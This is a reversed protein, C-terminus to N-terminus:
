QPTVTLNLTISQMVPSGSTSAATVQFQYAGAAAYRLNFNQKGGCGTAFLTSACFLLALLLLRHRRLNKRDRWIMCLCPALLCFFADALKTSRTSSGPRTPILADAISTVTNITVVSAQPSGALTVAPPLLSCSVYQAASLPACTLAVSGAFGGTPTVTLNYTAPKGSQVTAAPDDVTLTFGGGAAIGTGSLPVATPSSSDSSAVTLTGNRPGASSPTFTIQVACSNGPALTTVACPFSVIYDGSISLALNTLPATGTNMLSLQLNASLGVAVNGFSLTSPTILLRSQTGIGTLPLTLPITSASSAFAVSGTRTGTAAPAFTVQATCSTNAALTAGAAPCSGAVTYDGTATLSAFYIPNAGTNTLQVPLTASSGLPLSGFNLSTPAIVLPSPTSTSILSLFELSTTANSSISLAAIHTGPTQPTSAVTVDCSAGAVVTTCPNQISFDSPASIVAIQITQSGTNTFTFSQPPSADGVMTQPFTLSGQSVAFTALMASVAPDAVAVPGAQGTLNLIAPSSAADSEITLTGADSTTGSAASTTVQNSPTYTVTVNCSQAVALAAGCTTTSLFPPASTVRRVTIAPSGTPSQNTLTFVQSSSQGSAVQGFNYVQEVVLGGTLTLAGQGVGYGEAYAVSTLAASGDTPTANALITGSINGNTLPLFTLSFSCTGRPAVTTCPAGDLVFQRPLDLSLAFTKATTNTLTFQQTLGQTEVPTPGFNATGPTITLGATSATYSGSLAVTYTTTQAVGLTTVPISLTDTVAADGPQFTVAISCSAGQSLMACPTSATFSATTVTPAGVQVSTSGSNTLTVTQQTASTGAGNSFTLSLPNIAISPAAVGTGTLTSTASASETGSGSNFTLTGSRAGSAVPSFAIQVTCSATYALTPGCAQSGASNVTAFDGTLAPTLAASSGSALLNTLTFAFSGSTSNVPVSGFDQASPTLILGTLAAGTGSLALTYPSGQSSSSFTVTGAQPGTATPTFRLGLYCDPCAATFSAAFASAPPTGPGYGANPVTVATYPGTTTVSLSSFPQAIQYFQTAPQSVTVSGFDLDGNNAPLIAIGTGSLAVYFPSAGAGATVALTGNRTGPQSPAFTLSVACTAGAPLTATCSTGQTFDGTLALSLAFPSAGSNTIAVTQTAGSVGTVAVPASFSIAAPTVTLNPNVTAGGVTVAPLTQGTILVSVGQDLALTQSDNATSVSSLYDIRIACVTAALLISPCTDTLTFPSGAPLSVAAHTVSSSSANSLYLYRPLRIGNAYQTGFDIETASVSLSAAQSYGTLLVANAGISWNAQLLADSSSSSYATLGITIHCTAGAALLKTQLSGATPCDSATETFPSAPAHSSADIASTFTQSSSGLNTVTITRSGAASTYTQIGFDLEKPYFAISSAPAAFAPFSMTESGANSTSATLAGPSGGALLADCEGGPYLTTPCNTTLTAGSATLDLNDAETAGLNRLTVFPLNGSSFSLATGAAPTLKALYAASGACLSGNCSASTLEADTVASPFASTPANRLPLDYTQSALLSSSATPQVAGGIVAEGAPDVAISTLNAPLSAFSSNGTPLGGFRTTQDLSGTANVRAAFGNGLSSLPALPFLPATLNGDVWATENAGAAVSSQTGPAILTSATLAGLSPPLRLMVQYATPILPTAVNQVPFQGLAITGSALLTQTATDYAVSTLGPGPIFTSATIADGAPDLKALFGSPNSLMAPVLAATTPFGSATTSGAIYASDTADAAIATPTTDGSAGTLYTAYVLTSGDASFREAFGNQSSGPAPAQQIATATVPVNAAYTIGTVFVADATAAISSAAIRSGGTFSVFIPNLNTDFKAVFSNTSADTRTPIAAGSTGNLATSTTTGTVYVNGAPDLALGVGVDGHAGLLAQALLSVAANDTKLIRVGDGQNLLLYLNGASDAQVANVQGQQAVSRLGAFALQQSSNTQGSVQAVAPIGLCLLLARFGFLRFRSSSNTM